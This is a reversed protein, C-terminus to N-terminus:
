TTMFGAISRSLSKAHDTAKKTEEALRVFWDAPDISKTSIAIGRVIRIISATLRGNAIELVYTNEDMEVSLGTVQGSRVFLGKKERITVREPMAEHLRLAFARMNSEADTKFRRLWAAQMDFDINAGDNMDSTM